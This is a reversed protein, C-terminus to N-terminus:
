ASATASRLTSHVIGALTEAHSGDPDLDPDFVCIDIGVSAPHRVLDSLLPTLEKVSLGGPSPSDVAPMVSEDLIDADLHIWFGNLGEGSVRDLVATAAASHGSARIRDVPWVDMGLEEIETAYVDDSRIGVVAVDADQFSAGLDELDVLRDDGRGTVIALDEGAAAVVPPDNAPHRFDSHGDLFALGFRGRRKLALAAGILVSCDGGLVVVFAEDILSGIRNALIGSYLAIGDANRDGQGAVWATEYRPPVVVGAEELVLGKTMGAERLAWGLKYCGPVSGDLPPRLGLNTPADLLAVSRM